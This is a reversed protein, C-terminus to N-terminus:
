DKTGFVIRILRVHHRIAIKAKGSLGPKLALKSSGTDVWPDKIAVNTEFVIGGRALKPQPSINVVEGLFAKYKRHPFATIFVKTEQGTKVKPLDAEDVEAIFNMRSLDGIELLTKGGTVKEGALEETKSTLIGGAIPATVVTQALKERALEHGRRALAVEKEGETIQLNYRRGLMDAREQLAKYNAQAVESNLRLDDMAEASILSNKFLEKAREYKEAAVEEMRKAQYLNAFESQVEFSKSKLLNQYEENLQALAAEAAALTQATKEVEFTLEDSQLIALTDGASVVDNERVLCKEIIGDVRPKVGVVHAPEVVGYAEVTEDMRGFVLVALGAILIIAILIVIYGILKFPRRM